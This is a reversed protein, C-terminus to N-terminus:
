SEQSQCEQSLIRIGSGLTSVKFQCAVNADKVWTKIMGLNVKVLIKANLALSVPVKSKKDKLSKAIEKPLTAKTGALSFKIMKYGKEDQYLTPFKGTAIKKGKFSLTVDGNGKYNIGMEDNPNKAKLSITYGPSQSSKHTSNQPNNVQVRAISFTPAKPIFIISLAVLTLAIILALVILIGGIILICSKSPSFFKKEDPKQRYREAIVANEPPPIRYIQDKPIQIVYTDSRINSPSSLSLFLSQSLLSKDDTDDGKAQSVQGEEMPLPSSHVFTAIPHSLFKPTFITIQMTFHPQM